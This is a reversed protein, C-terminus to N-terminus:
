LIFTYLALRSFYKLNLHTSIQEYWHELLTLPVIILTSASPCLKREYKIRHIQQHNSSINNLKRNNRDLNFKLNNM